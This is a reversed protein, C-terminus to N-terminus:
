EAPRSASPEAAAVTKTAVAETPPPPPAVGPPPAVPHGADGVPAVPLAAVPSQMAIVPGAEVEEFRGGYRYDDAPEDAAYDIAVAGLERFEDAMRGERAFKSQLTSGYGHRDACDYCPDVAESDVGLAEPNGTLEAYSATSAADAGMGGTAMQGLLLGGVAGIGAIGLWGLARLSAGKDAM